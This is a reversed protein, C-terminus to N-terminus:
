CPRLECDLRALWRDGDQASSLVFRDEFLLELRRRLNALGLGAAQASREGALPGNTCTFHMQTGSLTLTITVDVAQDIPEVGHKFANEVLMIMLMPPITWRAADEPWACEVRCRSGFRLLQLDIYSALYAIEDDLRAWEDQGRYVAYRLLDSLKVVAGASAASDKLTLAYITNLSNFLFHPNIQQQLMHLEARAREHRGQADRREAVLREAALVIPVIVTWTIATFGYNEPDFPNHDESPLLSWHPPNLPLLLVASGALPTYVIWLVLSALAFAIWGHDRLVRRILVHRCLWYFGFLLAAAIAFQVLYAAFEFPHALLRAGDFWVGLPQNNVADPTSGFLSTVALTWVMLLAIVVSDLTLPLRNALAIIRGRGGGALLSAASFAAAAVIDRTALPFDSGTLTLAALPYAAFGALWGLAAFRSRKQQAVRHAAFLPLAALAMRALNAMFMSWDDGTAAQQRDLAALLVAASVPLLAFFGAAFMKTWDAQM